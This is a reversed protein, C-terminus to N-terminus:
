PAATSRLGLVVADRAAPELGVSIKSPTSDLRRIAALARVSAAHGLVTAVGDTLHLRVALGADTHFVDAGENGTPLGYNVLLQQVADVAARAHSTLGAEGVAEAIDAASTGAPCTAHVFQDLGPYRHTDRRPPHGSHGDGAVVLPICRRLACTVGVELAGPGGDSISVAAAVPRPSALPCDEPHTLARCPFAEAGAAHCRVVEHGAEELATAVPVDAGAQEELVLVRMEDGGEL